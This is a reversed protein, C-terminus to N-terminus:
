GRSPPTSPVKPLLHTLLHKLSPTHTETSSITSIPKIENNKFTIKTNTNSQDEQPPTVQDATAFSNPIVTKGLEQWDSFSISTSRNKRKQTLSINELGLKEATKFPPGSYFPTTHSPTQYVLNNDKQPTPDEQTEKTSPSDLRLPDFSSFCPLSFDLTPSNPPNKYFLAEEELFNTSYTTLHPPNNAEFYTLSGFPSFHDSFPDSPVFIRDNETIQVNTFLSALNVEELPPFFAIQHEPPTIERNPLSLTPHVKAQPAMKAKKSLHRPTLSNHLPCKSSSLYLYTLQLFHSHVSTPSHATPNKM